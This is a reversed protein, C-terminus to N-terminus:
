KVKQKRLTKNTNQDVEPLDSEDSKKSKKSKDKRQTKTKPVVTLGKSERSRAIEQSIVKFTLYMQLLLVGGLVAFRVVPVNFYGAQIDLAHQEGLAFGYFLTLIALIISGLRALIQLINSVLRTGKTFKEDKDVTQILQSIHNFLESTHHLVLLCVLLRNFNLLYPVYILVLATISQVAKGTYEERKTRQFYLEPIEHLNYALQVIVYLKLMFPMPAPYDSWLRAIDPIFHEKIALDVGWGASILYFVALQGSTSFVALKSKSLHLKKSIKDLVYEQIIAHIVICILSYFFVCAWDKVGPSYLPIEGAETVNHQLTIFISAIPSTAQVMLGVVFLMAVCSVIDAHNQIVFEHSLIPPNKNSSKRVPKVM